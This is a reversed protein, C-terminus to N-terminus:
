YRAPGITLEKLAKIKPDALMSKRRSWKRILKPQECIRTYSIRDLTREAFAM